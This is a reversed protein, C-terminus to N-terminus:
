TLSPRASDSDNADSGSNSTSHSGEFSDANSGTDRDSDSGEQDEDDTDEQDEDVTGEQDEDDTGEPDEDDTGEQDEEDTGEQDEDDTGEQSDHSNLGESPMAISTRRHAPPQPIRLPREPVGGPLQSESWEKWDPKQWPRSKGFSGKFVKGRKTKPDGRGLLMGPGGIDDSLAAAAKFM